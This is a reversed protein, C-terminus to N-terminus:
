VSGPRNMGQWVHGFFRGLSVVLYERVQATEHTLLQEGGKL